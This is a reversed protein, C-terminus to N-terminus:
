SRGEARKVEENIRRNGKPGGREAGVYHYWRRWAEFALGDRLSEDRKVSTWGFLVCLEEALKLRERMSEESLRDIESERDIAKSM